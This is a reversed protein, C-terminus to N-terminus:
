LVHVGANKVRRMQLLGEKGKYTLGFAPIIKYIVYFFLKKDEETRYPTREVAQLKEKKKLKTKGHESVGVFKLDPDETTVRLFDNLRKHFELDFM